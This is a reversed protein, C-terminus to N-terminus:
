ILSPSPDFIPRVSNQRTLAALEVIGSKDDRSLDGAPLRIFRRYTHWCCAIRV